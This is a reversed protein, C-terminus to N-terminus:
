GQNYVARGTPSTGAAGDSTRAMHKSHARRKANASFSNAAALASVSVRVGCGATEV